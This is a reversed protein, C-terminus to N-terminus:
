WVRVCTRYARKTRAPVTAIVLVWQAATVCATNYVAYATRRTRYIIIRRPRSSKISRWRAGHVVAVAATNYRTYVGDVVWRRRQSLGDGGGGVRRGTYRTRIYMIYVERATLFRHAYGIPMRVPRRSRIDLVLAACATPAFMKQGHPRPRGVTTKAVLRKHRGYLAVDSKRSQTVFSYRRTNMPFSARVYPFQLLFDDAGRCDGFRAGL